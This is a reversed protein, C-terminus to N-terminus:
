ASINAWGVDDGFIVLINPRGQAAGQPAPAAQQAQAVRTGAVAGAGAVATTGLLVDRRSHGNSMAKERANM